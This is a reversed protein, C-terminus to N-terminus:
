LAERVDAEQVAVGRTGKHAKGIHVEKSSVKKGNALINIEARREVPCKM